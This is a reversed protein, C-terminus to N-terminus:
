WNSHYYYNGDDTLFLEEIIAITDEIDQLYSSDLKTLGFFFGKKCPLLERATKTFVFVDIETYTDGDKNWGTKISIKKTESGVLSAKVKKCTDLLEQLKETEVYYEGCDDEGNQVNEVFWSHIHNAKRWYGIGEVISSTKDVNIKKFPYM